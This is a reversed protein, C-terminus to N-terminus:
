TPVIKRTTGDERGDGAGQASINMPSLDMSKELYRHSESVEEKIIDWSEAFESGTRCGSNILRGWRTDKSGTFDGIIPNLQDCVGERNTFHPLAQEVGGIFAAHRTELTSRIVLGGLSVPLRLLWYDLKQCTSSVLMSWMSQRSTDLTQCIKELEGELEDIKSDLMSTVYPEYGSCSTKLARSTNLLSTM